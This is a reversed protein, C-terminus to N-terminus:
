KVQRKIIKITRNDMQGHYYKQLVQQFVSNTNAVQSFLTMSSKLKMADTHGFIAVADDKDLKLLENSIEVLRTGLIEHNYYAQAESIDKIAYYQSNSSHGLGVIQPFIYWMWHTEKRGNKIEQLAIQYTDMQADLFRDLDNM